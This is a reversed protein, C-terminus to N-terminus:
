ARVILAVVAVGMRQAEKVAIHERRTNIIFMVGFYIPDIGAKTALVIEDGREEPFRRHTEYIYTCIDRTCAIVDASYDNAEELYAAGFEGRYIREFLGEDSYIGKPGFKDAVVADLWVPLEPRLVISCYLNVGPPSFWPQGLRGRGATQAEALVVTGEPAGSRALRSLSANTSEVQGCLYLQRGVVPARLRRRIGAISLPPTETALTSM